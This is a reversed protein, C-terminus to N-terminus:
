LAEAIKELIKEKNTMGTIQNFPVGDKFIIITPLASIGYKMATNRYQDVDLGYLPISNENSIEELVPKLLKCPVCRPAHFDVICTKNTQVPFNDDNLEQM